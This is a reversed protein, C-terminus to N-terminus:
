WMGSIFSNWVRVKFSWPWPWSHPWLALDYLRGLIMNVWKRKMECCDSWCNRLYLAKSIQGQFMWPWHWSHLWLDLDCITGLIWGICKRKTECWDSWCNSLYSWFLTQGHFFVDLIKLSFKGFYCNVVSNRAFRILYCVHSPCCAALNHLSGIPPEWEIAWVLLNKSISAVATVKPWPM